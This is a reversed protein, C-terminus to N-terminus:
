LNEYTILHGIKLIRFSFLIYLAIFSLTQEWRPMTIDSSYLINFHWCQRKFLKCVISNHRKSTNKQSSFLFFDILLRLFLLRWQSFVVAVTRTNHAATCM